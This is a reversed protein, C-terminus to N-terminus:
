HYNTAGKPDWSAVEMLIRSAERGYKENGDLLRVFALTAAANLAKITRERNGWWIARWQESKVQTGPPYKPPDSTDPPERLLRECEDVMKEYQPRLDTKARERLAALGQPRVFLRPHTKPIRGILDERGPLPFAVADKAISFRRVSSWSSTQGSTDVFRFRWFWDGEGLPKPAAYCALPLGNERLVVDRFLADRACELEYSALDKQPRWVFGPPDVESAHGDAPRYGWEGPVAPREDLTPVALAARGFLLCALPMLVITRRNWM